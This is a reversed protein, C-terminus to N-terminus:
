KVADCFLFLSPWALRNGTGFTKKATSSQQKRIQWPMSFNPAAAITFIKVVSTLLDEGMMPPGDDQSASLSSSSM